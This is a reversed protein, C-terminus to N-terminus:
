RDLMAALDNRSLVVSQTEGDKTNFVIFLGDGMCEAYGESLEVRLENQVQAINGAGKDDQM